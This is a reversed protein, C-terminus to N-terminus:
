WLLIPTTAHYAYNVQPRTHVPAEHWSRMATQMVQKNPKTFFFSNSLEYHLNVIQVSTHTYSKLNGQRNAEQQHAYNFNRDDSTAM